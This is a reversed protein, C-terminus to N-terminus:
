HALVIPWWGAGGPGALGLILRLGDRVLQQDDVLVV